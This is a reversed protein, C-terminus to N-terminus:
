PTHEQWKYDLDSLKFGHCHFNCYDNHYTTDSSTWVGEWSGIWNKLHTRVHEITQFEKESTGEPGTTVISYCISEWKSLNALMRAHKKKVPKGYFGLLMVQSEEDTSLTEEIMQNADNDFFIMGCEVLEDWTNLGAHADCIRVWRKLPTPIGGIAEWREKVEDPSPNTSRFWESFTMKM